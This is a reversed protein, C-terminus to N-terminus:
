KVMDLMKKNYWEVLRRRNIADLGKYFKWIGCSCDYMTETWLYLIRHMSDQKNTASFIDMITNENLMVSMASFFECAHELESFNVAFKKERRATERASHTLQSPAFPAPANITFTINEDQM